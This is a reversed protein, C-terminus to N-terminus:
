RARGRRAARAGRRPRTICSVISASRTGSACPNTRRARPAPSARPAAPASRPTKMTWRPSPSRESPRAWAVNPPRARPRRRPAATSRAIQTASGKVTAIARPMWCMRRRVVSPPSAAVPTKKATEKAAPMRKRPSREGREVGTFTSPSSKPLRSATEGSASPTITAGTAVNLHFSAFLGFATGALSLVVALLAIGGLTRGLLSATAAPIVVFASVLVVGVTKVGVVVVLATLALLLYELAAVPVGSLTALEPDITAYALRPGIWLLVAVVLAAVALIVALAEPSVALLSGFLLSEVNVPQASAPRLGLVLIGAAFSVAFFVGTAVDGGLTTRRRVYQIGLAITVTFPLAVAIARD